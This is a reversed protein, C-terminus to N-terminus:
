TAVPARPGLNETGTHSLGSNDTLHESNWKSSPEWFLSPVQNSSPRVGDACGVNFRAGKCDLCKGAACTDRKGLALPLQCM